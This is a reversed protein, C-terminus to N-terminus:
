DEEDIYYENYEKWFSNFNEVAEAGEHRLLKEEYDDYM